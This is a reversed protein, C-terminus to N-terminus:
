IITIRVADGIIKSELINLPAEAPGHTVKGEEDFSSGHLRCTYGNGSFTLPNSAHTCRLMLARFTGNEERRLAIDYEVGIARVMQLNSEKFLSLPVSLEGNAAVASYVPFSACSSLASMSIGSGIALCLSCSTKIFERRKM